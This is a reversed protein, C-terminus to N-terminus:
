WFSEQKRVCKKNKHMNGDQMIQDEWMIRSGTKTPNSEVHNEEDCGNLKWLFLEYEHLILSQGLSLDFMWSIVLSLYVAKVEGEIM